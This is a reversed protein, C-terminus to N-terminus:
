GIPSNTIKMYRERYTDRLVSKKFKGVSTRPIESTFEIADPLWWSAFNPALFQRLEDASACHDKRLVVIALPREDWKPHPVAIVAAEAVAPHAMLANELAVSSIWEGGSKVLDKARDTLEVCGDPHIMVVDGTRFWGDESFRHDPGDVNFYQRAVWPGRVELEGMTAGDWPVETGDAVARIEVFPLPKGQRARYRLQEDFPAGCLSTPLNCVTGLPTLETMGWAHVIKIGHRQDYAAIMSPPAASGGIAICRLASLDHTGPTKDLEQLMSLWVTPVGATLTVRERVILELVSAGDLHPGAFVQGCGFLVGTFPLGWANVHFMPVIPLLVDSEGVALSDVLGQSFSHLVISRHSYLVGKPRGTTGSTYCMAAADGEDIQVAPVSASEASALLAEYDLFGNDHPTGPRADGPVSPIVIVHEVSPTHARFKDFLPILSEDLILVRDRADNVIYSLDDPHLRLNLTHLVAGLSPIALYAELHEQSAWALTAVRDGRKVGLGALAVALRDVRDLVEAYSTRTIRRDPRRGSIPRNRYMTRARRVIAPVTLPYDMMLGHM